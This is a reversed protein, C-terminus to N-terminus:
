NRKDTIFTKIKGRWIRQLYWANKWGLKPKLSKKRKRIVRKRKWTKEWKWRSNTASQKGSRLSNRIKRIWKRTIWKGNESYNRIKRKLVRKTSREMKREM